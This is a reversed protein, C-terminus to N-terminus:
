DYYVQSGIVSWASSGTKFFSFQYVDFGSTGGRATPATGGSWLVTKGSGDIQINSNIYGTSGGNTSVIFM